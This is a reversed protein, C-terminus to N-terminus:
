ASFCSCGNRNRKRINRGPIVQPIKDNFMSIAYLYTQIEKIHQKKQVNTYPM